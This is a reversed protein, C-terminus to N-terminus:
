KSTKYSGRTVFYRVPLTSNSTLSIYLTYTPPIAVAELWWLDSTGSRGIPSPSSVTQQLTFPVSLQRILPLQCRFQRLQCRFAPNRSSSPDTMYVSPRSQVPVSRLRVGPTPVPLFSLLCLTVAGATSRFCRQLISLLLPLPPAHRLSPRARSLCTWLIVSRPGPVHLRRLRPSSGVFGRSLRPGSVGVGSSAGVCWGACARCSARRLIYKSM